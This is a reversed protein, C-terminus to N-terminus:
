HKGIQFWHAMKVVWWPDTRGVMGQDEDIGSM